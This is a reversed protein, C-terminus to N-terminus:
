AFEEMVADHLLPRFDKIKENARSPHIRNTLLIVAIERQLDLWFSTGTFGLHGISEASFHQGASSGTSSPTDFGLAWSSSPDLLAPRLFQSLVEPSWPVSTNGASLTDLITDLICKVESATGFLGSHGAVGGLVYANEDHVQGSLVNGRWPCYETDAFDHPHLGSRQDLPRFEPTPCDIEGYLHQQTFLHIDQGSIEELIWEILLFGLDSYITQDGPAFDLSEQLILQRLHTKRGNQPLTELTLYYPKWAPLGSCHCLLQRLTIEQKDEPLTISPLLKALSFDLQLKEQSVLCLVALATALPKTLSALDFRTITQMPRPAPLLAANGVAEFFLTKKRQSVLLVAGPFVTEAVGDILLQLIRREGSM